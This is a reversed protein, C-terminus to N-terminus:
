YNDYFYNIGMNKSDNYNMGVKSFSDIKEYDKSSDLVEYTQAIMGDTLILNDKEALTSLKIIDIRNM